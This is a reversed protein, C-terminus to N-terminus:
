EIPSRLPPTVVINKRQWIAVQRNLDIHTLM